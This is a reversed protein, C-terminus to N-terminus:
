SSAAQTRDGNQWAGLPRILGLRQAGPQRPQACGKLKPGPLKQVRQADTGKCITRHILGFSGDLRDQYGAIEDTKRLERATVEKSDRSGRRRISFPLQLALAHYGDARLAQM